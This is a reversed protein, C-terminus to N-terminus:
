HRLHNTPTDYREYHTKIPEISLNMQGAFLRGADRLPQARNRKRRHQEAVLLKQM